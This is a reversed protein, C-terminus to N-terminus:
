DLKMSFFLVNLIDGNLKGLTISMIDGEVKIISYEGKSSNCSVVYSDKNETIEVINLLQKYVTGDYTWTMKGVAGVELDINLNVPINVRENFIEVINDPRNIDIEYCIIRNAKFQSFAVAYVCLLMAIVVIKKM